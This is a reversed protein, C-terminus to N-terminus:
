RFCDRWTAGAHPQEMRHHGTRDAVQPGPPDVILAGALERFPVPAGITTAWYHYTGAKGSAFRVDRTVGPPVDLPACTSADRTCLGHVRLLSTLDNRISVALTAGENVRILPAPVTLAAGETGFAEIDLAPGAQGEPRWTGPAARLRITFLGDDMVGASRSNDNAVVPELVNQGASAVATTAALVTGALGCVLLQQWVKM